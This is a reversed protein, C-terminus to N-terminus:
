AKMNLIFSALAGTLHFRRESYGSKKLGGKPALVDAVEILSLEGAKVGWIAAVVILAANLDQHQGKNREVLKKLDKLELLRDM